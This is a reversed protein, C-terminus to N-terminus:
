EFLVAVQPVLEFANECAIRLVALPLATGHQALDRGFKLVYELQSWLGVGGVGRGKLDAIMPGLTSHDRKSGLNVLLERVVTEVLPPVARFVSMLETETNAVDYRRREALIAPMVSAITPYASLAAAYDVASTADEHAAGFREVDRVLATKGVLEM